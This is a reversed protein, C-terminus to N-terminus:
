KGVKAAKMSTIMGLLRFIIPIGAAFTTIFAIISNFTEEQTIFIFMAITILTIVVPTKFYNWSGTEKVKRELELADDASVESLVFNRFSENMMRFRNEYVLLGKNLLMTLVDRNKLNVLGDQAIDYLIYQEEESLSSWISNYYVHALSEIRLIIEEDTLPHDTEENLLSERIIVKQSRLFYSGDCERDILDGKGKAEKEVVGSAPFYIKHYCGLIKAWRDRDNFVNDAAAVQEGEENTKVPEQPYEELFMRPHINSVVLIRKNGLQKLEEFLRLRRRAAWFDRFGYEFHDIVIIEAEHCKEIHAKVDALKKISNLNIHYRTKNGGFQNKLWESKGSYPAGVLFVNTSDFYGKLSVLGLKNYQNNRFFDTTFIIRVFFRVFCYLGIICFLIGIWFLTGRVGFGNVDFPLPLKYAPVESIIMLSDVDASASRQVDNFHFLM